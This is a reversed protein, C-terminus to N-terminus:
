VFCYFQQIYLRRIRYHVARKAASSVGCLDPLEGLPPRGDGEVGILVGDCTCPLSKSIICAYM